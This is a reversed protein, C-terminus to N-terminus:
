HNKDGTSTQAPMSRAIGNRCGGSTEISQQRHTTPGSPAKQAVANARNLTEAANISAGATAAQLRRGVVAIARVLPHDQRSLVLM